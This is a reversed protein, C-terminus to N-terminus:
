DNFIYHHHTGYGAMNSQIGPPRYISITYKKGNTLYDFYFHAIYYCPFTSNKIGSLIKRFSFKLM